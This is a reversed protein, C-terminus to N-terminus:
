QTILDSSGLKIPILQVVRCLVTLYKVAVLYWLVFVKGSYLRIDMMSGYYVKGKGFPTRYSFATVRFVWIAWHDRTARFNRLNRTWARSLWYLSEVYNLKSDANSIVSFWEALSLTRPSADQPAMLGYNAGSRRSLAENSKGLDARWISEVERAANMEGEEGREPNVRNRLSKVRWFCAARGHDLQGEFFPRSLLASCQYPSITKEKDLYEDWGSRLRWSWLQNLTSKLRRVVRWENQLPLRKSRRICQRLSRRWIQCWCLSRTLSFEHRRSPFRMLLKCLSQWLIIRLSDRSCRSQLM